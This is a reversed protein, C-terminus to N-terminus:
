KFSIKEPLKRRLTKVLVIASFYIRISSYNKAKNLRKHKNNNNNNKKNMETNHKGVTLQENTIM